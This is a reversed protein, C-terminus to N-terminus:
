SIHLAEKKLGYLKISDARHPITLDDFYNTYLEALNVLEFEYPLGKKFVYKKIESIM